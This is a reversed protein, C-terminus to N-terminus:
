SRLDHRSVQPKALQAHIAAHAARLAQLRNRQLTHPATGPAFKALTKEVKDILKAMTRLAAQLEDPAFNRRDGAPGALLAQALRLAQLHERLMRHQWTAPALKQQAKESKGILSALPRLAAPCEDAAFNKARCPAPRSM